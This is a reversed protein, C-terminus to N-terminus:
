QAESRVIELYGAMAAKMLPTEIMKLLSMFKPVMEYNLRYLLFLASRHGDGCCYHPLHSYTGDSCGGKMIQRTTSLTSLFCLDGISPKRDSHRRCM